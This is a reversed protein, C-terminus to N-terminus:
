LILSDVSAFGSPSSAFLPNHVAKICVDNIFAGVRVLVNTVADNICAGALQGRPLVWAKDSQGCVDISVLSYHAKDTQQQVRCHKNEIITDSPGAKFFRCNSHM